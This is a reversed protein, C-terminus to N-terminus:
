PGRRVVVKVGRVANLHITRRWDVEGVGVVSETGGPSAEYYVTGERLWYDKAAVVRQNKLVLLTPPSVQPLESESASPASDSRIEDRQGGTFGQRVGEASPISVGGYRIRSTARASSDRVGRPAGSLSTPHEFRRWESPPTASTTVPVSLDDMLRVTIRTEGTLAPRPGRAPLTILKVPWFVPISWLVADRKAHGRGLLRGQRDVSYGSVAIVKGSIPITANPLIVRDFEL